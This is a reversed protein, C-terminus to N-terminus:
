LGVDCVCVCVCMCVFREVAVATRTVDRKQKSCIHRM